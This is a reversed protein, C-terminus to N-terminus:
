GMQWLTQATITWHFTKLAATRRARQEWFILHRKRCCLLFVSSGVYGSDKCIKCTHGDDRYVELLGAAALLDDRQKQLGLSQQKLREIITEVQDPSGAVAQITKMGIQALEKDYKEIQPLLAYIERRHMLTQENAQQRRASLVASAQQYIERPYGM